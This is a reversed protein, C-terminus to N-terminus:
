QCIHIPRTPCGVRCTATGEGSDPAHAPDLAVVESSILLDDLDLTISDHSLSGVELAPLASLDSEFLSGPNIEPASMRSM